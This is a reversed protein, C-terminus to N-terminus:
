HCYSKRNLKLVKKQFFSVKQKIIISRRLYIFSEAQSLVEKLICRKRQFTISRKVIKHRATVFLGCMNLNNGGPM